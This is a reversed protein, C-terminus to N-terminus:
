GTKEDHGRWRFEILAQIMRTWVKVSFPKRAVAERLYNLSRPDGNKRLLEGIFYLGEADASPKRTKALSSTLRAAEEIENGDGRGELRKRNAALSLQSFRM